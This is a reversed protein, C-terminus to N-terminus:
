ANESLVKVLAATNPSNTKKRLRDRIENVTHISMGLKHATAKSSLGQV